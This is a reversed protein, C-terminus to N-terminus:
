RRRHYDVIEVVITVTYSTDPEVILRLRGSLRMAWQPRRDGTLRHMGQPSSALLERFDSARQIDRILKEYTLAGRHGLRRRARKTDKFLKEDDKRLWRIKM